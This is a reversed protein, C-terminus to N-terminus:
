IHVQVALGYIIPRGVFVAKAGLCLAKFVDAGTRVGGDIYVDCLGRLVNAIAPLVEIQLRSVCFIIDIPGVTSPVSDLQRGGHNSVIVAKAGYKHAMLADNPTLVGKVIIPLRTVTTLWKIDTWGFSKDFTNDAYSQFGSTGGVNPENM